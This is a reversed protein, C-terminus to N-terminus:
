SWMASHWSEDFSKVLWGAESEADGVTAALPDVVETQDTVLGAKRMAWFESTRTAEWGEAKPRRWLVQHRDFWDIGRSEGQRRVFAVLKDISCGTAGAQREDM